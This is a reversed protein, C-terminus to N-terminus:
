KVIRAFARLARCADGRQAALELPAAEVAKHHRPGVALLVFIQRCAFFSQGPQRSKGARGAGGDDEGVARRHEGVPAIRHLRHGLDVALDERDLMKHLVRGLLPEFLIQAFTRLEAVVGPKVGAILNLFQSLGGGAGARFEDRDVAIRNVRKPM